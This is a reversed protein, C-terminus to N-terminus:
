QAFVEDISEDLYKIYDKGIRNMMRGMGGYTEDQVEGGKYTILPYMFDPHLTYVNMLLGQSGEKEFENVGHLMLNVRSLNTSKAFYQTVLELTLVADLDTAKAFAALEDAVKESFGGKFMSYIFEFEGGSPDGKGKVASSFPESFSLKKGLEAYRQKDEGTKLFDEPLLLEVESGDFADLLGKIAPGAIKGFFYNSTGDKEYTYLMLARGSNFKEEFLYTTVLGIKLPKLDEATVEGNKLPKKLTRTIDSQVVVHGFFLEDDDLAFDELSKLEDDNQATAFLGFASLAMAVFVKRIM